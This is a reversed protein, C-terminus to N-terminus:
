KERTWKEDGKESRESRRRQYSEFSPSRNRLSNLTMYLKLTILGKIGEEGREEGRREEGKREEGRKRTVGKAQWLGGSFETTDSSEIKMNM